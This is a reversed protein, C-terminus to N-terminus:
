SDMDSETDLTSLNPLTALFIMNSTPHINYPNTKANSGWLQLGPNSNDIGRPNSNISGTNYNIGGPNNNIGGPTYSNTGGPIYSNTGGPYTNLGSTYHTPKVPTHQFSYTGQNLFEPAIPLGQFSSYSSASSSSQQAFQVSRM